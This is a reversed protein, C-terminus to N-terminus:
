FTFSKPILFCAVANFFGGNEPPLLRINFPFITLLIQLGYPQNNGLFDCLASIITGKPLQYKKLRSHTNKINTLLNPIFFNWVLLSFTRRFIQDIKLKPEWKRFIRSTFNGWLLIIQFPIPNVSIRDPWCVIHKSLAEDGYHFLYHILYYM